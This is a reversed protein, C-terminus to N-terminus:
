APDSFDGLFASGPEIASIVLQERARTAAVYLLQRETTMVEELEFADAVENM